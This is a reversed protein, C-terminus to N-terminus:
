IDAVSGREVLEVDLIVKREKYKPFRSNQLKDLLKEAGIVGMRSTARRVVTIGPQIYEAFASDDFGVLSIDQGLKM